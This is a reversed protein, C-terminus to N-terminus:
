FTGVNIPLLNDGMEGFGDGRDGADGQGLQGFSNEGWCKMRGDSFLACSHNQGVTIALAVLATGLSVAPLNNGM